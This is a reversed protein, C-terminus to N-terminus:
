GEGPRVPNGALEERRWTPIGCGNRVPASNHAVASILKLMDVLPMVVLGLDVGQSSPFLSLALALMAVAFVKRRKM